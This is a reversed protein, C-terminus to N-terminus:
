DKLYRKFFVNFITGVNVESDVTIKGNMQELMQFTLYLGIGTGETHDNFRNFMGFIRDRHLDLDIGTGNDEVRLCVHEETLKLDIDITLQREKAHYKVANGIINELVSSVFATNGVVLLGEKMEINLTGGIQQVKTMVSPLLESLIKSFNVEDQTTKVKKLKIAQTLGNVTAKFRDISEEVFGISEQVFEDDTPLKEKLYNFHGEIDVMPSKLDHAAMYAFSELEKTLGLMEQSLHESHKKAAMLQDEFRKRLSIDFLTSQVYVCEGKSNKVEQSNILIPVREGEKTVLSFSLEKVKGELKLIVLYSSDFYIKGAKTLFDTLRLKGLVEEKSYGTFEIFRNNAEIIEGNPLTCIYGCPANNYLDEYDVNFNNRM